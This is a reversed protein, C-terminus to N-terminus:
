RKKSIKVIEFWLISLFGAALCILVDYCSLSAFRFLNRLFPITLILALVVVAGSTVLWLALNRVLFSKFISKKWSRNTFILGINAIILTSFTMTRIETERKGLYEAIIFIGFVILLVVFGQLLGVGLM